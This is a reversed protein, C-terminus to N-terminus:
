FGRCCAFGSRVSLWAANAETAIGTDMVMTASKDAGMVSLMEKLTGAESGPHVLRGIISGLAINTQKKKFGLRFYFRRLGNHKKVPVGKRGLSPRM